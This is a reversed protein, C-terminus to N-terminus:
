ALEDLEIWPEGILQTIEEQIEELLAAEEGSIRRLKLSRIFEGIEELETERTFEPAQHKYVDNQVEPAYDRISNVQMNKYNNSGYIKQEFWRITNAVNTGSKYIGIIALSHMLIGVEIASGNPFMVGKVITWNGSLSVEQHQQFWRRSNLIAKHIGSRVGGKVKWGGLKMQLQGYRNFSYDIQQGSLTEGAYQGEVFRSDASKIEDLIDLEHSIIDESTNMGTTEAAGYILWDNETM